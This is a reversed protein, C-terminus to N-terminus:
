ETKQEPVEQVSPRAIETDSPQEGRFSDLNEGVEKWHNFIHMKDENSLDTYLIENEKPDKEVVKPEQISYLVMKKMFEFFKPVDAANAKKNGTEQQGLAIEILDSPLYGSSIMESLDPEKVRVVFGSPLKILEGLKSQEAKERIEKASTVQLEPHEMSEM